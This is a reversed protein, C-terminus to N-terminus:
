SKMTVYKTAAEITIINPLGDAALCNQMESKICIITIIIAATDACILKLDLRKVWFIFWHASVQMPWYIRFCYICFHKQWSWEAFILPLLGLADVQFYSQLGWHFAKRSGKRGAMRKLCLTRTHVSTVELCRLPTLFPLVAGGGGIGLNGWRPVVPPHSGHLPNLHFARSWLCIEVPPNTQISCM